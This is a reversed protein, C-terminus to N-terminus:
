SPPTGTRLLDHRKLHHRMQDYTLGLRAAARRQNFRAQELAQRLLQAEYRRVASRFDDAEVSLPAPADVRPKPEVPTAVPREGAKWPRGFPDIIVESLTRDPRSMRCVSREVVNRLERVNGPWKHALLQALAAPSFGAFYAGGLEATMRTAFHEALLTIDDRRARLPPLTVVDFALRDLLDARFRGAAALSPLDANTAAIVRVDVMLTDNGGVREFAGYEITRLIKEQVALSATAIEDLFLTGGDALEFRGARRRSAGTFAGAEHGFLESDLLSEALAACNLKVFPREWRTSLYNLRNAILEKGTGREGVVLVPRNLPALRSVHALM